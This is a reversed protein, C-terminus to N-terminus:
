EPTMEYIRTAQIKELFSIADFNEPYVDAIYKDPFIKMAHAGEIIDPVLDTVMVDVDAIRFVDAIIVAEIKDFGTARFVLEKTIYMAGM